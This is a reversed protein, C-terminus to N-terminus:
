LLRKLSHEFGQLQLELVVLVELLEMKLRSKMGEPVGEQAVLSKKGRVYELLETITMGQAGKKEIDSGNCGHFM